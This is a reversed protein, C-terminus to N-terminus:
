VVKNVFYEIEFRLNEQRCYKSEYQAKYSILGKHTQFENM